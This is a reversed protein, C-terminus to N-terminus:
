EISHVLICRTTWDSKCEGRGTNRWILSKISKATARAKISPLSLFLVLTSPAARAILAAKDMEVTDLCKPTNPPQQESRNEKEGAKTNCPGHEEYVKGRCIEPFM